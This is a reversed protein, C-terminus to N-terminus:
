HLQFCLFNVNVHCKTFINPLSVSLEITQWIIEKKTMRTLKKAVVDASVVTLIHCVASKERLFVRFSALWLHTHSQAKESSECYRIVPIIYLHQFFRTINDFNSSNNSVSYVVKIALVNEFLEKLFVFSRYMYSPSLSASILM